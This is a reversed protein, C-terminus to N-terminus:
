IPKLVEELWRWVSCGQSLYIIFYFVSKPRFSLHWCGILFVSSSSVYLYNCFEILTIVTKWYSQAISKTFPNVDIIITLMIYGLDVQTQYHISVNYWSDELLITIWSWSAMTLLVILINYKIRGENIRLKSRM